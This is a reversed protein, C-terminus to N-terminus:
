LMFTPLDDPKRSTVVSGDYVVERDVYATGAYM